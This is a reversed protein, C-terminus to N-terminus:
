PSSSLRFSHSLLGILFSPMRAYVFACGLPIQMWKDKGKKGEEEELIIQYPLPSMCYSAELVSEVSEEISMHTIQTGCSNSRSQTWHGITSTFVHSKRVWCLFFM